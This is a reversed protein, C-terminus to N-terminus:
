GALRWAATVRGIDPRLAQWRWVGVPSTFVRGEATLALLDGGAPVFREVMDAPWPVRLGAAAPAFSRGGDRSALLTGRAGIEKAPGILLHDADAPDVWVGRVYDAHLLAWTAGGDDSRYFGGGTAALVLDPTSPHTVLSHIDPYVFPEPPGSLDPHGDSGAALRWTQGHDDSRLVGGVEVAAYARSGHFAFSRVCGAGSSYPLFWGHQDRLAEVEPCARWTAAGDRSVFLGAPETGAVEFDSLDPHYALWRVYPQTLGTSAPQWTRGLDDSRQVGERSGVLIVGERAIVSTLSQGTLARRSARWGDAAREAVVLGTQTALLLLDSM